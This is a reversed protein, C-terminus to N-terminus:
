RRFHTKDGQLMAITDAFGAATMNIVSIVLRFGNNATMSWYGDPYRDYIEVPPDPIPLGADGPDLALYQSLVSGASPASHIILNAPNYFAQTGLPFLYTGQLM